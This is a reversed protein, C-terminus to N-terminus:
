NKEKSPQRQMSVWPIAGSFEELEAIIRENDEIDRVISELDAPSLSVAELLALRHAIRDNNNMRQM